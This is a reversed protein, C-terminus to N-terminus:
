WQFSTGSAATALRRHLDHALDVPVYPIDIRDSQRAAGATDVRVRAMGMRRDFPSAHLAVVQMESYRTM